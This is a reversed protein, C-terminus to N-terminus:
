ERTLELMVAGWEEITDMEDAPMPYRLQAADAWPDHFETDETTATRVDVSTIVHPPKQIRVENGNKNTM